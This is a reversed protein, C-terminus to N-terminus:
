DHPQQLEKIIANAGAEGFVKLEKKVSYKTLM